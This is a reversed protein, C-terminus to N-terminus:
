NNLMDELIEAADGVLAVCPRKKYYEETRKEPVHSCEATDDLLDRCIISQNRERFASAFDQVAKYHDAKETTATPDSYGRLAGLVFVAGSVAGCVERLRGFGGGFSSVM